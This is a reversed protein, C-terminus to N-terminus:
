LGAHGLHDRALVGVLDDLVGEPDVTAVAVGLLVLDLADHALDLEHQDALAGGVDLLHDDALGHELVVLELASRARRATPSVSPPLIRDSTGPPRAHLPDE